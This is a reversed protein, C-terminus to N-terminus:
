FLYKGKRENGMEGHKKTRLIFLFSILEESDYFSISALLCLNRLPHPALLSNTYSKHKPYVTQPSSTPKLPNQIMPEM